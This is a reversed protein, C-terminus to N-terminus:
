WCSRKKYIAESDKRKGIYKKAM